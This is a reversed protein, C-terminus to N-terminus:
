WSGAGGPRGAPLSSPRHGLIVGVQEPELGAL